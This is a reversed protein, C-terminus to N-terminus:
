NNCAWRPAYEDEIGFNAYNCGVSSVNWNSINPPIDPWSVGAFMSTMNKVNSTDWSSLEVGFGMSQGANEFMHSMDTVNSTNFHELNLWLGGITDDTGYFMYSMNTVKSTDLQTLDIGEVNGFDVNYFMGEMNTVRSTDLTLNRIPPNYGNSNTGANAFMYSMDTVSSTDFNTFDIIFDDFSYLYYLNLFSFWYATNLPSIKDRFQIAVNSDSNYNTRDLADKWPVDDFSTYNTNNLNPYIEIIEAGDYTDGVELDPMEKDQYFNLVLRPIDADNPEYGRIAYIVGSGQLRCEFNTVEFTLTIDTGKLANQDSNSNHIAMNATIYKPTNETIDSITGTHTRPYTGGLVYDTGNIEFTTLRRAAFSLSSLAVSMDSEPTKSSKTVNITYDCTYTGEGDVTIKGINAPTSSGTAYYYTGANEESMQIRSVELSLSNNEQTLIVNGAMDEIEATLNKTDFRNDSTVTFYSYTAGFILILLTSVAVITSTLTKKDM